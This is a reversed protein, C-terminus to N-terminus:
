LESGGDLVVAEITVVARLPLDGGPARSSANGRAEPSLDISTVIWDPERRRWADLFRGFEPLTIPALTLAARRRAANGAGVQPEPSLNALAPSSLGADAIASAVREALTRQSEEIAGKTPLQSRLAVLTEAHTVTSRLSKLEANASDFARVAGPVTVALTIASALTAGGWLIWAPPRM